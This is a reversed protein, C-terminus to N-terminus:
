ALERFMALREQYRMQVIRMRESTKHKAVIIDAVEGLPSHPNYYKDRYLFLVLNADEEISKSESLDSLLPRKDPREDIERKLQSAAVIAIGFERALDKLTGTLEVMMHRRDQSKNEARIRQIHDVLVLERGQNAARRIERTMSSITLPGDRFAVKNPVDNRVTQLAAYWAQKQEETAKGSRLLSLSIGSRRSAESAFIEPKPQDPSLVLCNQSAFAAGHLWASKGMSTRGAMIALDGLPFGGIARDVSQYGTSVTGQNQSIAAAVEFAHADTSGLMVDSVTSLDTELQTLAVQHDPTSSATQAAKLCADMILRRKYVDNIQRAYGPANVGVGVADSLLGVLFNVGGILSLENAQRLSETLSALDLGEDAWYLATIHKWIVRHAQVYFAEVPLEDIGYDALLTPDLIVSSILEAEVTPASPVNTTKM